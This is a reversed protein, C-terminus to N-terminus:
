QTGVLGCSSRKFPPVAREAGAKCSQAGEAGCVADIICRCVLVAFAALLAREGGVLLCEVLQRLLLVPQHPTRTRKDLMPTLVAPQALRSCAPRNSHMKM